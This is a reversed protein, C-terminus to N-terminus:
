DHGAHLRHHRQGRCGRGGDRGDMDDDATSTLMVSGSTAGMAITISDAAVTAEGVVVLDITVAGDGAEIARSATATIMSTGGEEIEM